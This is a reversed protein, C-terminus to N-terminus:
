SDLNHMQCQRFANLYVLFTPRQLYISILKKTEFSIKIFCIDSSIFYYVHFEDMTRNQNKLFLIAELFYFIVRSKKGKLFVIIGRFFLFSRLYDMIIGFFEFIRGFFQCFKAQPLNTTIKLRSKTNKLPPIRRWQSM